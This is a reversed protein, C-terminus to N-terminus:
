VRLHRRVTFFSGVLGIGVGLVVMILALEGFFEGSPLFKLFTSLMAFKTGVYNVAANYMVYVIGLPLLSGILGIIMGEIVFPARVIFDTAGIYKMITIEESRISIGVSVTNSILFISVGILLIILGMSILAILKNVASLTSAAMESQNVTRVIGVSQIYSVLVSQRSVDNLYIQLNSDDALPNEAFGSAYEGLYDKSFEAWAEEASQFVIERVESRTELEAKLALM